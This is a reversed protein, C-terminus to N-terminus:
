ELIEEKQLIIIIILSIFHIRNDNFQNVIREPFNESFNDVLILEWEQHTQKIVSQIARSLFPSNYNPM